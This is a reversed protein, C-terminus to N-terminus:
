LRLLAADDRKAARQRIGEDSCYGTGSNKRCLLGLLRGSCDVVALRRGDRM